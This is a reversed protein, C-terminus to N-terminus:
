SRDTQGLCGRIPSLPLSCPLFLCAGLPVKLSSFVWSHLPLPAPLLETRLAGRRLVTEPFIAVEPQMGGCWPSSSRTRLFTYARAPLPAAWSAPRLSILGATLYARWWAQGLM